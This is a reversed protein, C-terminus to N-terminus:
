HRVMASITELLYVKPAIIVSIYAYAATIILAVGIATSAICAFACIFYRIGMDTSSTTHYIHETEAGLKFLKFAWFIPLILVLGLVIDAICHVTRVAVMQQCIEPAQSLVFSKASTLNDLLGRLAEVGLSQLDDSM